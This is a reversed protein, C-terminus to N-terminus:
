QTSRSDRQKSQARMRAEWEWEWASLSFDEGDKDINIVCTETGDAYTAECKWEEALSDMDMSVRHCTMSQVDLHHTDTLFRRALDMVEMETQDLGM